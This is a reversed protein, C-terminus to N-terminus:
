TRGFLQRRVQHYKFRRSKADGRTEEEGTRELHGGGFALGVCLLCVVLLVVFGSDHGFLCVLLSALM